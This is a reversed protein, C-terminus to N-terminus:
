IKINKGELHDFEKKSSEDTDEFFASGALLVRANDFDDESAEEDVFSITNIGFFILLISLVRLFMFIEKTVIHLHTYEAAALHLFLSRYMIEIIMSAIFCLIGKRWSYLMKETRFQDIILKEEMENFMHYINHIVYFSLIIIGLSEAIDFATSLIVFIAYDTVAYDIIFAVIIFRLFIYILITNCKVTNDVFGFSKLNEMELFILRFTLLINMKILADLLFQWKKLLIIKLNADFEWMKHQNAKVLAFYSMLLYISLTIATFAHVLASHKKTVPQKQIKSFLYIINMILIVILIIINHPLIEVIM